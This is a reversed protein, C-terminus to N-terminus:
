SPTSGDEDELANMWALLIKADEETYIVERTRKVKRPRVPSIGRKEWRYITNPSRGVRKALEARSLRGTM